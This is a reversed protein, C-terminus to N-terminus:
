VNTTHLWQHMGVSIGGPFYSIYCLIIAMWVSFICVSVEFRLYELRQEIYCQWELCRLYLQQWRREWRQAKQLPSEQRVGNSSRTQTNNQPLKECLKVVSQVTKHHSEVDRQIVQLYCLVNSIHIQVVRYESIFSM